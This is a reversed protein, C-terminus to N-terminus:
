HSAFDIEISGAEDRSIVGCVSKGFERSNRGLYRVHIHCTDDEIKCELGVVFYFGRTHLLVEVANLKEIQDCTPQLSEKAVLVGYPGHDGLSFGLRETTASRPALLTDEISRVLSELPASNEYESNVLLLLSQEISKLVSGPGGQSSLSLSARPDSSDVVELVAAELADGKIGEQGFFEGLFDEEARFVGVFLHASGIHQHGLQSAAELALEISRKASPTFVMQGGNPSGSGPKMRKRLTKLLKKRDVQLRDLVDAVEGSKEALIACLIHLSSLHAHKQKIAEDRSRGMIRRSEKSMRDFM